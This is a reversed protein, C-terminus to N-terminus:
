TLVRSFCCLREYERATITIKSSGASAQTTASLKYYGVTEGEPIILPPQKTVGKPLWTAELYLAGKFGNKRTATVKLDLEANKALGIRPQEISIDFPAEELIGYAMKRTKNFHPAFGGRQDNTSNTQVLSGILKDKDNIPKPVLEFIGSGLNASRDVSWVTQIVADNKTFVPCEFRVGAPLGVAELKMPGDYNSGFGNMIMMPRDFSSGRHIGIVDRLFDFPAYPYPQCYTFVSNHHLQFEVRYIYDPGSERRTDAIGILYEGDVDPEFMVIPDLRDKIQHRYSHGEWDHGNWTSDDQEINIRSNTGDAPKIWIFADLKSGLTMAYTRVRYKEGKKAKFRYWDKEGEKSIIGNLAFPLSQEVNQEDSEVDEMVNPFSAVQLKNPSPLEPLDTVTTLDVMSKEFQGVDRLITAKLQRKTGDLYFVDLNLSKGAQGGLPYTIAPRPFEGIHLGYHLNYSETDKQQKATVFYEGSEPARFSVVPDHAFLFSRSSRAIRKGAASHVEVAMDTLLGQHVTGLRANLIQCTCLQGKKLTVKYIDIDNAVHNTVGMGVVTSNLPVTQAFEPQDNRREDNQDAYAHREYVVPFPTVWFSLMESLKKRTRVRLYYEGLPADSAIEFDLEIVRGPERKEMRDYGLYNHPVADLQRIATCNIGPRYFLVEEATQLHNGEIRVTVKTGRQGIQPLILDATGPNAAWGHQAAGFQIALGVLLCCNRLQGRWVRTEAFTDVTQRGYSCRQTQYKPVM